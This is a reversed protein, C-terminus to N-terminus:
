SEVYSAGWPTSASCGPTPTTTRRKVGAPHLTRRRSKPATSCYCRPRTRLEDLPRCAALPGQATAPCRFHPRTCRSGCALTLDDAATSSRFLSGCLMIVLVSDNSRAVNENGCARGREAGERLRVCGHRRITLQGPARTPRVSSPIAPGAVKTLSPRGVVVSQDV